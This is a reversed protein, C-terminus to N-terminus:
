GMFPLSIRCEKLLLMSPIYQILSIDLGNPSIIWSFFYLALSLIVSSAGVYSLGQHSKRPKGTTLFGSGICPVSTQDRTTSHWMSHPVQFRHAVVLTFGIFQLLLEWLSGYFYGKQWLQSWVSSFIFLQISIKFLSLSLHQSFFQQTKNHLSLLISLSHILTISM